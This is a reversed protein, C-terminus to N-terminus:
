RVEDRVAQIENTAQRLYDLVVEMGLATWLVGTGAPISV